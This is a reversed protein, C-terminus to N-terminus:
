HKVVSLNSFDIDYIGDATDVAARDAVPDFERVSDPSACGGKARSLATLTSVLDSTKREATFLMGIRPINKGMSKTPISYRAIDSSFGDGKFAFTYGEAVDLCYANDVRRANRTLHSLSKIYLSFSPEIKDRIFIDSGNVVVFARKWSRPRVDPPYLGSLELEVAQYNDGSKFRARPIAGKSKKYDYQLFWTGGEGLQGLNNFTLLNHSSSLKKLVYSDDQVIAKRGVWMSYSGEDPHIHSGPYVGRSLALYGQPPGAKFMVLFADDDWSSRSLLIGLNDFWGYLPLDSPSVPKIDPDYWIYDQWLITRKRRKGEIESALWQAHGDNFISALCRLFAGPGYYDILLSDAYDVNYQFGPLSAYLRFRATNKLFGSSRVKEYGQAPALASYYNLLWLTGYSWYSIGEHSAGDPSLLSLVADFNREAEKLWKAARKDEGYLAVGAIAMAGVNVYNHNQLLGKDQSWWIERKSTLNYFIEAHEAISDRVLLRLSPSLEDYLWDYALSMSYLVHAPGMDSNGAWDSNTSFLSLLDEITHFYSSDRTILYYFTLDLLGDAPRRITSADFRLLNNPVRSGIQGRGRKRIIKLFDSYPKSSRVERLGELQKKNFYLRPRQNFVSYDADALGLNPSLCLMFGLGVILLLHKLRM